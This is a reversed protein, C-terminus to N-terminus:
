LALKNALEQYPQRWLDILLPDNSSTIAVWGQGEYVQLNAYQQETIRAFYFYRQEWESSLKRWATDQFYQEFNSEALNLNTEERLERTIASIM